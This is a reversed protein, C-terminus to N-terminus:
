NVNSGINGQALLTGLDSMSNHVNIYGDFSLLEVYTISAQGEVSEINTMSRGTAGNVPAFTFAIGGGEAASNMHIHAPHMGGQATNQLSLTALTSGDKRQRFIATGSVGMVDVEALPYTISEGTLENSGIDGQAVITALEQMSLHVNIYGDYDLLQEYSISSGNELMAINTVSRGTAGNVPTFTFAIAGGELASNVHIHAPHMGDMPTNALQIEALTEGNVRKTFTATGSIGPVDKEALVYEKSENTLENQGIDGQAVLTSLEAASLHVNIYGDFDLLEDYDIASGNDLMEIQNVSRGTAGDVPTFSYAIDGGEAATNFHIHAPHMGDMPTNALQIEALTKGSVRQSFKATGSISPVDAVGLMYTKSEGTLENIGIDGQALLTGLDQMSNHVNIYGDFSILQDYSIPTGNDLADVTVSAMGTSGDVMGLSLAIDGGEAATNMHIHAPHMGGSATNALRLNITTTNDDNEIFEATGTISPNSVAGLQFEKVSGTPMPSPMMPENDEDCAFFLGSAMLLVGFFLLKQYNM